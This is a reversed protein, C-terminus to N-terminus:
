LDILFLNIAVRTCWFCCCCCCCFPLGKGEGGGWGGVWVGLITELPCHDNAGCTSASTRSPHGPPSCSLDCPSALYAMPLAELRRLTPDDTPPAILLLHHLAASGGDGDCQLHSTISLASLSPCDSLSPFTRTHKSAQLSPKDSPNPPKCAQLSTLGSVWGPGAWRQTTAVVACRILM